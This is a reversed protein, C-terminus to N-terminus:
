GSFPSMPTKMNCSFVSVLHKSETGQGALMWVDKVFALPLILIIKVSYSGSGNRLTSRCGEEIRLESFM